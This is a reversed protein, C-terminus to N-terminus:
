PKRKISLIDRIVSEIQTARVGHLQALDAISAGAQFLDFTKRKRRRLIKMNHEIREEEAEANRRM